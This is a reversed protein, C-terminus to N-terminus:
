AGLASSLDPDLNGLEQPCRAVEARGCDKFRRSWAQVTSSAPAAADRNQDLRASRGPKLDSLHGADASAASADASVTCADASVIDADASVTDTM